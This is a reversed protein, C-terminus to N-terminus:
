RTNPQDFSTERIQRATSSNDEEQCLGPSCSPNLVLTTYPRKSYTQYVSQRHRFLYKLSGNGGGLLCFSSFGLVHMLYLCVLQAFFLVFCFHLNCVTITSTSRSVRGNSALSITKEVSYPIICFVVALLVNNCILSSLLQYQLIKIQRGLIYILYLISYIPDQGSSGKAWM